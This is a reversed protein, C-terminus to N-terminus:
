KVLKRHPLCLRDYEERLKGVHRNYDRVKDTLRKIYSVLKSIIVDDSHTGDDKIKLKEPLEIEKIYVSALCLHSKDTLSVYERDLLTETVDEIYQDLMHQYEILHKITREIEERSMKSYDYSLQPPYPPGSLYNPPGTHIVCGGVFLLPIAVLAVRRLRELYLM